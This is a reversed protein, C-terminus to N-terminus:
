PYLWLLWAAARAAFIRRLALRVRASEADKLLGAAQLERHAQPPNYHPISPYLHHEIHYNVHHAFM